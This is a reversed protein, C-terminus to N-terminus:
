AKNFLKFVYYFGVGLLILPSVLLLVIYVLIDSVYEREDFWSDFALLSAIIGCVLTSWLIFCFLM